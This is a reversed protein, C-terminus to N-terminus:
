VTNFTKRYSRAWHFFVVVVALFKTPPLSDHYSICLNVNQPGRWRVCAYTVTINTTHEQRVFFVPQCAQCVYFATLIRSELGPPMKTFARFAEIQKSHKAIEGRYKDTFVKNGSLNAFSGLPCLECNTGSAISIGTCFRTEESGSQFFDSFVNSKMAPMKMRSRGTYGVSGPECEFGLCAAAGAMGASM